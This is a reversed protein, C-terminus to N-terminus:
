QRSRSYRAIEDHLSPVSEMHAFEEAAIWRFESHESSLIVEGDTYDCVFTIGVKFEGTDKKFTFVNFPEAITVTLGTEERIERELADQPSEATDMGGGPTEWVNPKHDDHESRKLVLIKGDGRRVIGKVALYYQM